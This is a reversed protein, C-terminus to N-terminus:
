CSRALRAYERARWRYGALTGHVGDAGVLQPHARVAAAWDVILVRSTRATAYTRLWRNVGSYDGSPRVITAWIVCGQRAAADRYTTRVAAKLQGFQMPDDNTFLSMGVVRSHVSAHSYIAM